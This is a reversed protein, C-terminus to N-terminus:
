FARVQAEAQVVRSAGPKNILTSGRFTHLGKGALNINPDYADDIAFGSRDMFRITAQCAIAENTANRVELIWAFRSWTNNTETVRYRCSVIEFQPNGAPAAPQYEALRSELEAAQEQAKSLRRALEEIRASKAEVMAATTAHTKKLEALEQVEPRAHHEALLRDFRGQLADYEAQTVGGRLGTPEAPPGGGCGALFLLVAAGLQCRM